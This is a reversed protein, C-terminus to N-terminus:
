KEFSSKEPFYSQLLKKLWEKEKEFELEPKDDSLCLMKYQKTKLAQEILENDKGISYFKGIYPNGPEFQGKAFQWYRCLWQNVDMNNRLKHKCTEELVEPEKEWVEEFTSKLYALPIHPNVFGPFQKVGLMYINKLLLRKYNLSFWKKRYKKLTDKKLFHDNLLELDNAVIHDIGGKKFVHVRELPCDCPLGNKFFHEPRMSAVFFTDDNAYIFHEALDPIRHLNLEIVHSNYTPLYEKPIYDTHKVINLKPHNVKMWKPVHGWTIFHIKRIWPLNKEIGRFLYELNDWERFRNARGDGEEEKLCARKEALWKPDNGDVWPIVLDIEM